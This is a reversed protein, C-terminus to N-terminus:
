RHSASAAHGTHSRDAHRSSPTAGVPAFIPGSLCTWLAILAIWRFQM